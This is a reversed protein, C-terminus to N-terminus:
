WVSRCCVWLTLKFVASLSLEIQPYVWTHLSMRPCESLRCEISHLSMPYSNGRPLSMQLCVIKEKQIVNKACFLSLYSFEPLVWSNVNLKSFECQTWLSSLSLISHMHSNVKTFEIRQIHTSNLPMVWSNTTPRSYVGGNTPSELVTLVM